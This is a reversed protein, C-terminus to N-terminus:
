TNSFDFADHAPGGGGIPRPDAARWARGPSRRRQRSDAPSFVYSPDSSFVSPTMASATKAVLNTDTKVRAGTRLRRRSAGEKASAAPPSLPVRQPDANGKLLLEVM